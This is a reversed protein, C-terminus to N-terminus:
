DSKTKAFLLSIECASGDLEFIRVNKHTIFDIPLFIENSHVLYNLLLSKGNSIM